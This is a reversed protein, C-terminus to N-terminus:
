SVDADDTYATSALAKKERGPGRSTSPTSIRADIRCGPATGSAEAEAAMRTRQGGCATEGYVGWLYVPSGVLLSAITPYLSSLAATCFRRRRMSPWTRPMWRM